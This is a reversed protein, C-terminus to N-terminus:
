GARSEHSRQEQDADFHQQPLKEGWRQLFGGPLVLREALQGIDAEAAAAAGPYAVAVQDQVDGPLGTLPLEAAHLDELQGGPVPVRVMIPSSSPIPNKRSCRSISLPVITNSKFGTM